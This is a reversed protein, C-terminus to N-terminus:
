MMEQQMHIVRDVIELRRKGCQQKLVTTFDNNKVIKKENNIYLAELNNILEEETIVEEWYANIINNVAIAVERQTRYFLKVKM